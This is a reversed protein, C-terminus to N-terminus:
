LERRVPQPHVPNVLGQQPPADCGARLWTLFRSTVLVEVLAQLIAKIGSDFVQPHYFDQMVRYISYKSDCNRCDQYILDHLIEIILLQAGLYM